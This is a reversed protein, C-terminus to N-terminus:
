VGLMLEALTCALTRAGILMDAIRISEQASHALGLTGSGLGVTPMKGCHVLHAADFWAPMPRPAERVGKERELHRSLIGVLPDDAPVAFPYLDKIWTVQPPHEALWPDKQGGSRITEELAKMLLDGGYRGTVALAQRAEDEGYNFNYGLEAAGPVSGPHSGAKFVGCNALQEPRAEHRKRIWEDLSLKLQCAKDIANVAGLAAHGPRGFVRLLLTLIGNCGIMPYLGSGDLCLAYDGTLGALCCALTGAGAGNCEEDVVSEYIVAGQLEPGCVARLARLATLGVVLNGKSDSSGRGLIKGEVVEGCFPDDYAMEAAGVTDMHCNLVITPGGPAFLFTGIVNQRGAWSRGPNSVMLGGRQYVDANVQVTRIVAGEAELLARMAEQGEGEHHATEDGAYPNVTSIRVLRCTDAVMQEKLENVKSDLAEILTKSLPAM